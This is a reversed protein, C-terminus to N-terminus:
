FHLGFQNCCLFSFWSGNALDFLSYGGNFTFTVCGERYYHGQREFPINKAVRTVSLFEIAHTNIKRLQPSKLPM